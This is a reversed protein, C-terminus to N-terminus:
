NKNGNNALLTTKAETKALLITKVKNKAETKALLDTMIYTYFYGLPDKLQGNQHVEYHLHNGTTLGTNGVTGIYDGKQIIQGKKVRITSLHAYLTEFGRSNKIIIKNGYGTKSYVVDDVKGTMSSYIRVGGKADIDVGDHFLPKHYIPHNRWGFGSSIKIFDNTRIPSITPYLNLLTKNKKIEESTTIMKELQISILCSISLSRKDINSFISDDSVTGFSPIKEFSKADICFTDIKIGLTQYYIYNDYSNISVLNKEIDILREKLEVYKKRLTYNEYLLFGNKNDFNPDSSANASIPHSCFFIMANATLLITFVIVLKSLILISKKM